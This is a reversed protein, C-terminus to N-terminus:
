EQEGQNIAQEWADRQTHLDHVISQVYATDSAKVTDDSVDQQVEPTRAHPAPPHAGSAAYVSTNTQQHM